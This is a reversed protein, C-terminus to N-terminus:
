VHPVVERRPCERGRGQTLQEGLPCRQVWSEPVPHIQGQLRCYIAPLGALRNLLRLLSSATPPATSLKPILFSSGAQPEQPSPARPSPAELVEEGPFM